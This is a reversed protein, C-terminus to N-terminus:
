GEENFYLKYFKRGDPDVGKEIQNHNGHIYVHFNKDLKLVSKFIRAQRKVAQSAIEFSEAAPMNNYSSYDEDYKLFSDIIRPEEFVTEAFENKDFQENNKFYELSRSLLDISETRSVPFEEPMEKTVFERTMKLVHQTQNYEDVAPKVQLLDSKWVMGLPNKGQEQLFVPNQEEGNDLILAGLEMNKVPIGTHNEVGSRNENWVTKIFRDKVSSFFVAVGNMERYGHMVHTLFCVFLDGPKGQAKTVQQHWLEALRVSQLYLDRPNALISQIIDDTENKEPTLVWSEPNKFAGSILQKLAFASEADSLDALGASLTLPEDMEPNGTRHLATYLIQINSLDPM